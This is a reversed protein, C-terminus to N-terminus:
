PLLRTVKNLVGQYFPFQPVSLNQPEDRSCFRDGAPLVLCFEPSSPCQASSWKPLFSFLGHGGNLQTHCQMKKRHFGWGLIIQPRMEPIGSHHKCSPGCELGVFSIMLRQTGASKWAACLTLSVDQPHGLPWIAPQTSSPHIPPHTSLSTHRHISPRISSPYITSPHFSLPHTSPQFPLNVPIHIPLHTSPQTSSHTPSLTPWHIFPQTPRQISAAAESEWLFAELRLTCQVTSQKTSDLQSIEVGM